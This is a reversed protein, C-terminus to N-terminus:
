NYRFSTVIFSSNYHTTYVNNEYFVSFFHKKTDIGLGITYPFKNISFPLQIRQNDYTTDTRLSGIVNIIPSELHFFPFFDIYGNNTQFGVLNGGTGKIHTFEFYWFGKKVYRKSSRLYDSRTLTIEENQEYIKDKESNHTILIM